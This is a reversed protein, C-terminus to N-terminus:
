PSLQGSGKNYKELHLQIEKVWKGPSLVGFKYVNNNKLILVLKKIIIGESKVDSIEDFRIEKKESLLKKSLTIMRGKTKEFVLRKNTLTLIGNK